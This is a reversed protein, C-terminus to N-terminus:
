TLKLSGLPGPASLRLETVGGSGASKVMSIRPSLQTEDVVERGAAMM